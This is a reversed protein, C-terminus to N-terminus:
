MHPYMCQSPCSWAAERRRRPKAPSEVFCDSFFFLHAGTDAWHHCAIRSLHLRPGNSAITIALPCRRHFKSFLHSHYLPVPLRKPRARDRPLSTQVRTQCSLNRTAKRTTQYPTERTNKTHQTQRDDAFLRDTFATTLNAPLAPLHEQTQAYRTM